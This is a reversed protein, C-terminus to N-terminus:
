VFIDHSNIWLIIMEDSKMVNWLCKDNLGVIMITFNWLCLDNLGVIMITFNWLCKDNLGVFEAEREPRNCVLVTIVLLLTM